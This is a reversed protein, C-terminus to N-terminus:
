IFLTLNWEWQKLQCGEIKPRALYIKLSPPLDSYCQSLIFLKVIEFASHM